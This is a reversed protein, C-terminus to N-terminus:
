LKIKLSTDGVQGVQFSAQEFSPPGFLGMANNSFGYPEKPIKIFNSALKGNGNEDHFLSIAYRGEPINKFIVQCTGKQTIPVKQFQYAEKMFVDSRDYIGIRLYGEAKKINSIEVSVQQTQPLVVTSLLM